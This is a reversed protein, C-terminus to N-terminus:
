HATSVGSAGPPSRTVEDRQTPTPLDPHAGVLAPLSLVATGIRVQVGDRDTGIASDNRHSVNPRDDDAALVLPRHEVDVRVEIKLPHTMEPVLDEHTRIEFQEAELVFGQD